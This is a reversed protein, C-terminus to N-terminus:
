RVGTGGKVESRFCAAFAQAERDLAREDFPISEKIGAIAAPVDPIAELLDLARDFLDEPGAIANILGVEHAERGSVLRGTLLLETARSAGILRVLHQVGGGGPMIGRRIEPLGLSTKALAVRLDLWCALELGGGLAVGNICAVMPVAFARSWRGLAAIRRALVLAGAEDLTAFFDPDAGQSFTNGRGTWLIGQLGRMEDLGVVAAELADYFPGDMRSRELWVLALDGRRELRVRDFFTTQVHPDPLREPLRVPM